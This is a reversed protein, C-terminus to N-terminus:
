YIAKINEPMVAKVKDRYIAYNELETEHKKKFSNKRLGSLAQYEKMVPQYKKYDDYDSVAQTWKEYRVSLESLEARCNELVETQKEEFARVDEWTEFHNTDILKALQEVNGLLRKDKFRQVYPFIPRVVMESRQKQLMELATQIESKQEPVSPNISLNFVIRKDVFQEKIFCEMVQRATAEDWENPLSYKLSRALQANKAKENKEVSNWLVARDEFEPPAHEPLLVGAGVLDEKATRNYTMGYYDSYLSTRSIYASQEVASQGKSRQVISARSSITGNKM